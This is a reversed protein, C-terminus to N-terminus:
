TTPSRSAMHCRTQECTAPWENLKPYTVKISNFLSHTLWVGNQRGRGRGGLEVATYAQLIPNTLM